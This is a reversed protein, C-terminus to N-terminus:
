PSECTKYGCECDLQAAMKKLQEVEAETVAATASIRARKLHGKERLKERLHAILEVYLGKKAKDAFDWGREGKAALFGLAAELITYLPASPTM